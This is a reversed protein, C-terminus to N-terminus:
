GKGNTLLNRVVSARRAVAGVWVGRVNAAGPESESPRRLAGWPDAAVRERDLESQGSDSEVRERELDRLDADAMHIVALHGPVGMAAHALPPVLALSPRAVGESRAADDQARVAHSSAESQRPLQADPERKPAGECDSDVTVRGASTISLYLDAGCCLCRIHYIPPDPM